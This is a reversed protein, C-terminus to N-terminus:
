PSQTPASAAAWPCRGVMPKHRDGWRRQPRTSEPDGPGPGLSLPEQTVTLVLLAGSSVAWAQGAHCGPCVWESGPGLSGAPVSGPAQSRPRAQFPISNPHPWGLSPHVRSGVLPMRLIVLSSPRPRRCRPRARCGCLRFLAQLRRSKPSRSGLVAPPHTLRTRLWCEVVQKTVPTCTSLGEPGSGGPGLVWGAEGGQGEEGAQAPRSRQDGTLQQEQSRAEAARLGPAARERSSGPRQCWTHQGGRGPGRM